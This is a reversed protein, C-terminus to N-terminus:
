TADLQVGRLDVWGAPHPQFGQVNSRRASFIPLFYPIIVAGEEALLAEAQQYLTKRRAPTTASHAQDLLQDLQASSWGSENWPSWSHYAVAFTEYASPRFESFSVYFPVRGWYESLYIETPVKVEVVEIEIGAPRAMAQFAYALEVMGAAAAGTILQLQLGNPYGAENLLRRAAEPDYPTAPVEAFFPSLAAVPQDHGVEGRGQLIHQQLTARDTCAKLAQRVRVDAFIPENVRMVLNQYRGSAVEAVVTDPYETLAAIATSPVDLLLDVEDQLLATVQAAFDAIVIHHLEELYIEPAAWYNPNRVYGIREGVVLEEFLFPGTGSPRTLLQEAPYDHALIRAQPAALLLPLDPNPATLQFHVTQDDVAEVSEVFRLIPQLVSNITPDLLRKFTYVVDAATLITGHHFTVDPRLRFLWSRQDASVEWHSALMPQAALAADVWTLADYVAAGFPYAEIIEFKAPDLSNPLAALAIRLRRPAATVVAPANPTAQVTETTPTAPTGPPLACSTGWLAALSGASWQATLQLFHRRNLKSM